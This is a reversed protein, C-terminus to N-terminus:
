SHCYRHKKKLECYFRQVTDPRQTSDLGPVTDMRCFHSQHDSFGSLYGCRPVTVVHVEARITTTDSVPRKRRIRFLCSNYAANDACRSSLRALPQETHTILRMRCPKVRCRYGRCCTSFPQHYGAIVSKRSFRFVKGSTM